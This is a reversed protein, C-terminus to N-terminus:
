RGPAGREGAPTDAPLADFWARAQDRHGAARATPHDIRELTAERQSVLAARLQHDREAMTQLVTLQRAGAAAVDPWGGDAARLEATRDLDSACALAVFAAGPSPPRAGLVTALAAEVTRSTWPQRPLWRTGWATAYAHAPNPLRGPVDMAILEERNMLRLTMAAWGIEKWHEAEDYVVPRRVRRGISEALGPALRHALTPRHRRAFEVMADATRLDLSRVLAAPAFEELTDLLLNVSDGADCSTLASLLRPVHALDGIRGHGIRRAVSAGDIYSALDRAWDPKWILALRVLDSLAAPSTVERATVDLRPRLSDMWTSHPQEPRLGLRVLQRLVTYQQTPHQIHGLELTFANWLRLDQQAQRMLEEGKGPALGEVATLLGVADVPDRYMARRLQDRLVTNGSLRSPVKRTALSQLVAAAGTADLQRLVNLVEAVESSSSGRRLRGAWRRGADEVSEQSSELLVYAGAESASLGAAVLTRITEQACQAASSPSSARVREAFEKHSHRELYAAPIGPYMAPGIRHFQRRTDMSSATLMGALLREEKVQSSLREVFAAGFEEDQGILLAVQPGWPRMSYNLARATVEVFLDLCDSRYPAEVEWLGKILHYQVSVRPDEDIQRIVWEQGLAEALHQAFGKRETVFLEDVRATASLLLGAGKADDTARILEALRAALAHDPVPGASLVTRATVSHIESLTRILQAAEAPMASRTLATRVAAAFVGTSRMSNLMKTVFALDYRRAEDLAYRLQWAHPDGLARRLDTGHRKLVVDWDRYDPDFRLRLVLSAMFLAIGDSPEPARALLKQVEPAHEVWLAREPDGSTRRARRVIEEVRCVMRYDLPRKPDLGVLIEAGRGAVFLDLDADHFRSFWDLLSFLGENGTPQADLLQAFRDECWGLLRDLEEDRIRHRYRHIARVAPLLERASGPSVDALGALMTQLLETFMDDGLSSDVALLLVALDLPSAVRAWKRVAERHQEWLSDTLRRCVTDDYLRAGRLLALPRDSGSALAQALEPAALRVLLQHKGPRDARDRYEHEAFTNLVLDCDAPSAFRYRGTVRGQTAGLGELSQALEADTAAGDGGLLSIAAILAVRHLARADLTDKLQGRLDEELEEPSDFGKRHAEILGRSFRTLDHPYRRSMAAIFRDSGGVKSPHAAMARAAFAALAAPRVNSRVVTLSETQWDHGANIDYELVALLSVDLEDAVFPLVREVDPEGIPRIGDLVVVPRGTSGAPAEQAGLAHRVVRRLVDRTPFEGSDPSLMLVFRGEARMRRLFCRAICSKGSGSPGGLVAVRRVNGQFIERLTEVQETEIDPLSQREPTDRWNNASWRLDGLAARHQAQQWRTWAPGWYAQAAGALGLSPDAATRVSETGDCSTRYWGGRGPHVLAEGTAGARLRAEADDMPAFARGAAKPALGGAALVGGGPYSLEPVNVTRALIRLAAPLCASPDDVSLPPLLGVASLAPGPSLARRVELDELLARVAAVASQGAAQNTSRSVSRWQRTGAVLERAAGDHDPEQPQDQAADAFARLGAVWAHAGSLAVVDFLGERSRTRPDCTGVSAADGFLAFLKEALGPVAHVASTLVAQPGSEDGVETLASVLRGLGRDTDCVLWAPLNAPEATDKLPALGRRDLHDLLNDLAPQKPSRGETAADMLQDLALLAGVVVDRPPVSDLATM